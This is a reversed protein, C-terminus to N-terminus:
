SPCRWRKWHPPEQQKAPMSAPTAYSDTPVRMEGRLIRTQVHFKRYDGAFIHGDGDLVFSFYRGEGHADFRSLLWTGPEIRRNTVTIRTGKRIKIKGGDVEVNALFEGRLQQVVHDEEDIAAMGSFSSLIAEGPSRAKISSDCAVDLLLTSRDEVVDHRLNSFSCLELMRSLLIQPPDDPFGSNKGQAALAKADTLERDVRENEAALDSESIAVKTIFSEGPISVCGDCRPLERGVRVGELWFIEFKRATYQLVQYGVGGPKPCKRAWTCEKKLKNAHVDERFVYEREKAEALRQQVIGLGVLSDVERKGAETSTQEQPTAQAAVAISLSLLLISGALKAM